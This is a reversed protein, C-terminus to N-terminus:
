GIRHVIRARITGELARIEKLVNEADAMESDTDLVVYGIDGKTQYYQGAINIENESFVENLRRLEGPLNRQIQLFRTGIPRPPLLVEPFNVAGVTNGIDSYDALKRAVEEGIRSQAELTSGGVHPTLIVNEIGQLPSVFSDKNSPPEVPFVDVAAGALRGSKLADALADLDILDGRANNILIAGDKMQEIQQRGIMGRTEPTQPVHLSIVDATGLLESLSSAPEVNGHRLKDTHDYYIVRMGMAEALNSLQTGINGYGVIGLTKGRIEHSQSASKEWRGIHAAQSRQFTRRYLMIIEAITLEAVSRTNSFPANFVPVGRRQAAELDIQNTGVSFCGVAVLRDTAELVSATVQTRSRIGLIRVDSLKEKLEAEDLAGTLREVNQYGRQALMSVATDSIGELLLIKIKDKPLSPNAIKTM